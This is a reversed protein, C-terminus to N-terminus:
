GISTPMIAMMRAAIMEPLAELDRPSFQETCDQSWLHDGTAIDHLRIAVEITRRGDSGPQGSKLEGELLFDAATKLVEPSQCADRATRATWPIPGTPGAEIHAAELVHRYAPIAPTLWALRIDGRWLAALHHQRLEAIVDAM